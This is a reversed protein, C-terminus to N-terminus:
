DHNQEETVNLVWADIPLFYHHIIKNLRIWHKRDSEKEVILVVGGRRGTQQAYWLAQGIAEAWKPAFDFEIAHSDTLCDVRTRDLLVYETVGVDPTCWANQHDREAAGISSTFLLALLLITRNM